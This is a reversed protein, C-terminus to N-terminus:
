DHCTRVLKYREKTDLEGGEIVEILIENLVNMAVESKGFLSAALLAFKTIKKDVQQVLWLLKANENRAKMVKDSVRTKQYFKEIFEIHDEQLYLVEHYDSRRM